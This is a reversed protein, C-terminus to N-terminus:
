RAEAVERARRASPSVRSAPQDTSLVRRRVHEVVEFGLASWVTAAVPSTASNHLRMETMGREACWQEAARLLARLVGRRREAPLVYVSSVYCYREPLLIPSSVTDVCRLIGVVRDGREALFMTEDPSILQAHYLEIARDAADPRLQSYLPDDAYEGLLALRMEVIRPLDHIRAPRVALARTV